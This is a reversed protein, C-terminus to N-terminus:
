AAEPLPKPAFNARNSIFADVQDRLWGFRRYAAAANSRTCELPTGDLAIGRWGTTAVALLDAVQRDREDRGIEIGNARMAANDATARFLAEEYAPADVGILDIAVPSGDEQVLPKGTRPNLLALTAGRAADAALDFGALDLDAFYSDLNDSM